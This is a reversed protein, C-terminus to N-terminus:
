GHPSSQHTHLPELISRQPYSTLVTTITPPFRAGARHVSPDREPPRSGASCSRAAPWTPRINTSVGHSITRIPVVDIGRRRPLPQLVSLVKIGVGPLTYRIRRRATRKGLGAAELRLQANLVFDKALGSGVPSIATGYRLVCAFPAFATTLCHAGGSYRRTM